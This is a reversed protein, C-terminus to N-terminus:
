VNQSVRNGTTVNEEKNIIKRYLGWSSPRTEHSTIHLADNLAELCIEEPIHTDAGYFIKLAYLM